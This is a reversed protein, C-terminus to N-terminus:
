VWGVQGAAGKVVSGLELTVLRDLQARAAANVKRFAVGATFRDDKGEAAVWRVVGEIAIPKELASHAIELSLREDKALPKGRAVLKMGAPSIDVVSEAVLPKGKTLRLKKSTLKAKAGRAHVRPTARPVFRVELGM